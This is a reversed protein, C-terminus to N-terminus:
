YVTVVLIVYYCYLNGLPNFYADSLLLYIGLYLRRNGYNYCLLSQRFWVLVMPM